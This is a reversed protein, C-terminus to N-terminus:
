GAMTRLRSLHRAFCFGNCLMESAIRRSTSIPSVALPFYSPAHRLPCISFTRGRRKAISGDWRTSPNQRDVPALALKAHQRWEGNEYTTIENRIQRAAENVGIDPHWSVRYDRLRSDRKDNLQRRDPAGPIHGSGILADVVLVRGEVPLRLALRAIWIARDHTV